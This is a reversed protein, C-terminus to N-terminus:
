PGFVMKPSKFILENGLTAFSFTPLRKKNTHEVKWLLLQSLIEFFITAQLAIVKM